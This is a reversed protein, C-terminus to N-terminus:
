RTKSQFVIIVSLLPFVLSPSGLRKEEEKLVVDGLHSTSTPRLPM